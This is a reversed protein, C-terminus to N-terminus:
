PIAGRGASVTCLMDSSTVHMSAQSGLAPHATNGELLGPRNLCALWGLTRDCKHETQVQASTSTDKIEASLERETLMNRQYSWHCDDSASVRLIQLGSMYSAPAPLLCKCCCAKPGGTNRTCHLLVFFHLEANHLHTLVWVFGALWLKQAFGSNRKIPMQVAVAIMRGLGINYTWSIFIALPM